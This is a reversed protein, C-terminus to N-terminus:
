FTCADSQGRDRRKAASTVPGRFPDAALRRNMEGLAEATLEERLPKPRLLTAGTTTDMDGPAPTPVRVRYLNSVYGPPASRPRQKAECEPCLGCRKGCPTVKANLDDLDIKELGSDIREQLVEQIKAINEYSKQADYGAPNLNVFSELHNLLRLLFGTPLKAFDFCQALKWNNM